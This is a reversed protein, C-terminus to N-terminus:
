ATIDEPSTPNGGPIMRSMLVIRDSVLDINFHDGNKDSADM